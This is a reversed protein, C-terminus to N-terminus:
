SAWWPDAEDGPKWEPILECFHWIYYLHDLKMTFDGAFFKDIYDNVIVDGCSCVDSYQCKLFSHLEEHDAPSLSKIKAIAHAILKRYQYDLIPQPLKVKWPEATLLTEFILDFTLM